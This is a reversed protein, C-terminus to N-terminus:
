ASRRVNGASAREPLSRRRLAANTADAAVAPERSRRLALGADSALLWEGLALTAQDPMWGFVDCLQLLFSPEEEALSSDRPTM